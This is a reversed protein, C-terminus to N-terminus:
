CAKIDSEIWGSGKIDRRPILDLLGGFGEIDLPSPSIILKRAMNKLGM